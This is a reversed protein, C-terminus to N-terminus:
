YYVGMHVILQWGNGVERWISLLLSPSYISLSRRKNHGVTSSAASLRLFFLLCLSPAFVMVAGWEAGCMWAMMLYACNPKHLHPLSGQFFYSLLLIICLGQLCSLFSIELPLCYDVPGCTASPNCLSNAVSLGRSRTLWIQSLEKLSTCPTFCSQHHSHPPQDLASWKLSTSFLLFLSKWYLKPLSNNM